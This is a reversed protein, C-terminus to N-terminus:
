RGCTCTHDTSQSHANQVRAIQRAPWTFLTAVSSTPLSGTRRVGTGYMIGHFDSRLVETAVKKALLWIQPPAVHLDEPVTKFVKEQVHWILGVTYMIGTEVIDVLRCMQECAVAIGATSGTFFALLQTLYGVHPRVHRM